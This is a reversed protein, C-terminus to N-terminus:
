VATEVLSIRETESAAACRASLILRGLWLCTDHGVLQWRTDACLDYKLISGCIARDYTWTPYPVAALRRTAIADRPPEVALRLIQMSDGIRDIDGGDWQTSLNIVSAPNAGAAIRIM